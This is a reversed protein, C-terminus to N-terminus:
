RVRYKRDLDVIRAKGNDTVRLHVHIVSHRGSHRDEIQLPMTPM